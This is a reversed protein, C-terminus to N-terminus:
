IVARGVLPKSHASAHSQREFCCAASVLEMVIHPSPRPAAVLQDESHNDRLAKGRKPV